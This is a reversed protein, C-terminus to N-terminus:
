YEIKKLRRKAADKYFSDGKGSKNIVLNLWQKTKAWNKNSWYAQAIQYRFAQLTSANPHENEFSSFTDLLQPMYKSLSKKVGFSDGHRGIEKWGLLTSIKDQYAIRSAASRPFEKIVKDYWKIAAEVRPIWSSDITFISDKDSSWFDGHRLYSLALANDISEKTTEGVIEALEQIRGSVFKAHKSEPYKRKLERWSKLAVSIRNEDFAMSGLLYYAKSKSDSTSKSFLVEILEKKAEGKLGHMSFMQAKQISAGFAVSSLLSFSTLFTLMAFPKM